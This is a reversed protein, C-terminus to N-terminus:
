RERCQTVNRTPVLEGVKLWNNNGFMQVGAMLLQVSIIQQTINQKTEKKYQFKIANYVVNLLTMLGLTNM